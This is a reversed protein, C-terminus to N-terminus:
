PTREAALIARSGNITIPEATVALLRWDVLLASGDPFRARSQGYGAPAPVAGAEEALTLLDRPPLHSTRWAALMDEADTTM